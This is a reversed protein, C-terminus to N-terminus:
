GWVVSEGRGGGGGRRGFPRCVRNTPLFLAACLLVVGTLDDRDLCDEVVETIGGGGGSRSPITLEFLFLMSNISDNFSSSVEDGVSTVNDPDLEEGEVVVLVVLVAGARVVFDETDDFALIFCPAVPLGGVNIGLGALGELAFEEGLFSLGRLLFLTVLAPSSLALMNNDDIFEVVVISSPTPLSTTKILVLPFALVLLLGKVIVVFRLLSSLRTLLSALLKSCIACEKFEGDDM